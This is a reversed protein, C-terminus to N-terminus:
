RGPAGLGLAANDIVLLWDESTQPFLKKIGQAAFTGILQAKGNRPDYWWAKVKKAHLAALNLTVTGGVPLYAM